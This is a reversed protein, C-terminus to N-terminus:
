AYLDVRDPKIRVQIVWAELDRDCCCSVFFDLKDNSVRRTNNSDTHGREGM